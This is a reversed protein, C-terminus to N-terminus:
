IRALDERKELSLQLGDREMSQITKNVFRQEIPELTDWAWQTEISHAKERYDILAQYFDERRNLDNMHDQYKRSLETSKDRLEKDPSVSAYFDIINAVTAQDSEFKALATFTNYFTRQEEQVIEDFFGTANM